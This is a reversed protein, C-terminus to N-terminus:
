APSSTAQSGCAAASPRAVQQRHPQPEPRRTSEAFGSRPRQSDHHAAKRRRTRDRVCSPLHQSDVPSRKSISKRASRGRRARSGARVTAARTPTLHTSRGSRGASTAAPAPMSKPTLAKQRSADPANHSADSGTDGLDVNRTRVSRAPLPMTVTATAVTAALRRAVPNISGATTRAVSPQATDARLQTVAVHMRSDILRGM